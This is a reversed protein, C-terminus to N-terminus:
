GHPSGTSETARFLRWEGDFDKVPEAWDAGEEYLAPYTEHIIQLVAGIKKSVLIYDVGHAYPDKLMEAFNRDNTVVRQKPYRSNLLVSYASYSDTLILPKEGSEAERILEDAYRSVERAINLDKYEPKRRHSVTRIRGTFFNGYFGRSM